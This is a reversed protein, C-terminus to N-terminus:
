LAYISSYSVICVLTVYVNPNHKAHYFRDAAAIHVCFHLTVSVLSVAALASPGLTAGLGVMVPILDKLKVGYSCHKKIHWLLAAGLGGALAGIISRKIEVLGIEYVSSFLGAWLLMQTLATPIRQGDIAIFALSILLFTFLLLAITTLTSGFQIALFLSLISTLLEVAPYRASIPTDCHACKRKLVLWSLLPVNDRIRLATNCTPCTSRPTSLTLASTAGRNNDLENREGPMEAKLQRVYMIPLRYIIVNLFSGVILGFFGIIACFQTYSINSLDMAVVRQLPLGTLM